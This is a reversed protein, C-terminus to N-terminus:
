QLLNLHMYKLEKKFLNTIAISYKGINAGVDFIVPNDNQNSFIGDLYHLVALEGSFEIQDGTSINMGKLAVQFMNDFYQQYELKGIMNEIEM